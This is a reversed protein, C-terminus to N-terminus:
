GRKFKNNLWDQIAKQDTETSRRIQALLWSHSPPEQVINKAGQNCESCLARLNDLTEKGGHSKDIIHGIHLRAKRGRDDIEGAAVGCMKCTYGNRELVEARLRGSINRNFQVPPKDPPTERLRYQGPILDVADNHTEIPWGEDERLERVATGM